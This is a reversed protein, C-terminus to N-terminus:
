SRGHHDIPSFEASFIFRVASSDTPDKPWTPRNRTKHSFLPHRHFIASEKGGEGARGKGIKKEDYTLFDFRPQFKIIVSVQITTTGRVRSILPSLKGNINSHVAPKACNGRRGGGMADNTCVYILIDFHPLASSFRKGEYIVISDHNGCLKM